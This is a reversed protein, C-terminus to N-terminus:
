SRVLAEYGYISRQGVSVIPQHVMFLSDIASDFRVDLGALDGVQLSSNGALEVMRRRLRALDHAKVAASVSLTLEHPHFPKLLYRFAGHEVADMATVLSPNGTILIVPMDLSQRRVARLLEIGDYGPMAIDSVVVVVDSEAIRVLANKGHVFSEVEFGGRTLARMVAQGVIEEDDVVVVHPRRVAGPAGSIELYGQTV